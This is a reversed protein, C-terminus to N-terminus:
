QKTHHTAHVLRLSFFHYYFTICRKFSTSLKIYLTAIRPVSCHSLWGLRRWTCYAPYKLVGKFKLPDGRETGQLKCSQM